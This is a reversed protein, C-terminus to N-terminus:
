KTEEDYFGMKKAIQERVQGIFIWYVSPNEQKLKAKDSWSLEEFEKLTEPEDRAM